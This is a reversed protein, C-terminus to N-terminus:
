KSDSNSDVRRSKKSRASKKKIAKELKDLIKSLFQKTPIPKKGGKKTAHFNAKEMQYKEYKCCDRTNPM